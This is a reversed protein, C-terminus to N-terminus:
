HLCKKSRSETYAILYQYMLAHFEKGHSPTRLFLSKLDDKGGNFLFGESFVCINMLNTDNPVLVFTTIRKDYTRRSMEKWVSTSLSSFSPRKYYTRSKGM